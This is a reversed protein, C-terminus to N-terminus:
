QCSFMTYNVRLYCNYSFLSLLQDYKNNLVHGIIITKVDIAIQFCSTIYILLSCKSMLTLLYFVDFQVFRSNRLNESEQNQQDEDGDGDRDGDTKDTM